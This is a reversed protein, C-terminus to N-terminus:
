IDEASSQLMNTEDVFHFFDTAMERNLGDVLMQQTMKPREGNQTLDVNYFKFGNGDQWELNISTTANKLKKFCLTAFQWGKYETKTGMIGASFKYKYKKGTQADTCLINKTEQVSGHSTHYAIKVMTALNTVTVSVIYCATADKQGVYPFSVQRQVKSAVEVNDTGAQAASATFLMALAMVIHKFNKM